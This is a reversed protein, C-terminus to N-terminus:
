KATRIARRLAETFAAPFTRRGASMAVPGFKYAARYSARPEFAIQMKLPGRGGRGSRVYIGAPLHGAKGSNRSAVFAGKRRKIRSLGGKPLNGYKNLRAGAPVVLARGRPRRVGGTVQMKLYSAQVPKAGVTAILSSKRARRLYFARKTFPTPREFASEVEREEAEKVAAATENLAMATAFPLQKRGLDSLLREAADFDAKISLM